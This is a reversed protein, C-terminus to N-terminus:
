HPVNCLAGEVEVKFHMDLLSSCYEGLLHRYDPCWSALHPLAAVESRSLPIGITDDDRSRHRVLFDDNVAYWTVPVQERLWAFVLLDPPDADGIFLRVYQKSSGTLSNMDALVPLGYIGITAVPQPCEVIRKIRPLCHRKTTYIMTRARRHDGDKTLAHLDPPCLAFEGDNHSTFWGEIADMIQRSKALPKAVGDADRVPARRALAYKSSTERSTRTTSHGWM